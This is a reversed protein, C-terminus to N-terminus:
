LSTRLSKISHAAKKTGKRTTLSYEQTGNEVTKEIRCEKDALQGREQLDSEERNSRKEKKPRPKGKGEPKSAKRLNLIEGERGGWVKRWPRGRGGTKLKRQPKVFSEKGRNKQAVRNKKTPSVKDSTGGWTCKVRERMHGSTRKMVKTKFSTRGTMTRTHTHAMKVQKYKSPRKKESQTLM